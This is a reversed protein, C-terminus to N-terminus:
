SHSSNKIRSTRKESPLSVINSGKFVYNVQITNLSGTRVACYVYETEAVFVPWNIRYLFIIVTQEAIRSLFM